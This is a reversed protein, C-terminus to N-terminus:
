ALLLRVATGQDSVTVFLTLLFTGQKFNLVATKESIIPKGEVKWGIAPLAKQYFDIVQAATSNTIYLTAGPYRQVDQADEMVPADVLGTPCDKPLVITVPQDAKTVDYAWTLTGETNEGFYEPGGTLTLSYKLVYGGKDAVWVEGTAKARDVIGLAREDFKYGKAAVNNVKKTGAEAAGVVTPLFDAPEWVSPPANPGTDAALIYGVCSKNAGIRYFMGNMTASWAAIYPADPAKGTFTATLARVSPQNNALLVLKESWRSAKRGEKGKFDISLTAQYGILDALGNVPLLNFSGPGFTLDTDPTGIAATPTTNVQAVAQPTAGLVAILLVSLILLMIWYVYNRPSM